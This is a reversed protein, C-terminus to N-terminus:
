RLIAFYLLAVPTRLHLTPLERAFAPRLPLAVGHNTSVLKVWPSLQNALFKVWAARHNAKLFLRATGLYRRRFCSIFTGVFFFFFFFPPPTFPHLEVAAASVPRAMQLELFSGFHVSMMDDIEGWHFIWRSMGANQELCNCGQCAQMRMSSMSGETVDHVM